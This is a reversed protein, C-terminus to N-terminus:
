HAHHHSAAGAARVTAELRITSRTGRAGEVTLELPVSEHERLPRAIDVLMIHLENPALRVPKKAPLEIRDVPRMRMVGDATGSAHMEARGAVVSSVAILAAKETSVIDLYVSATTQGPSTARAWAGKVVVDGAAFAPRSFVYLAALVILGANRLFWMRNMTVKIAVHTSRSAM